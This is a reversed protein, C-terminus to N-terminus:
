DPRTLEDFTVDTHEDLERLEQSLRDDTTGPPRFLAFVDRLRVEPPPRGPVYAPSERDVAHVLGGDVLYRLNREVSKESLGSAAVIDGRLVPGGGRRWKDVVLCMIRAAPEPGIQREDDPIEQAELHDLNQVAHSVEAGLLVVLWSVWIWLLVVPLLGLPGYVGSYRNLAVHIVYFRFLEKTLEFLIASLLGGVVAARLSVRLAPLLKNAVFLAGFSAALEIIWGTAGTTLGFRAAHYLSVGLLAPVLTAVAYFYVFRQGLTRRRVVRWIDNFIGEVSKYLIFALILTFVLGFTGAAQGSLNGSWELLKESVETRSVPLVERALFNVLASEADFEGTARLLSLTVAFIPVLSLATEFALYSAQQPCHDRSWQRGVQVVLRLFNAIHRAVGTKGETRTLRHIAETL